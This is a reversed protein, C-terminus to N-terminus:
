SNKHAASEAVLVSIFLPQADIGGIPLPVSGRVEGVVILLYNAKNIM